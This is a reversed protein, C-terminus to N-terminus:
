LLWLERLITEYKEYDEIYKQKLYHKLIEKRDSYGTSFDKDHLSLKELMQPMTAIHKKLKVDKLQKRLEPQIYIDMKDYQLDPVKISVTIHRLSKESLIKLETNWFSSEQLQKKLEQILKKQVEWLYFADVVNQNDAFDFIGNKESVLPELLLYPNIAIEQFIIKKEAPIYQAVCKIQNNELSSTSRVSWLCLYNRFIFTKHLHGSIIKITPIDLFEESLAVDKFSFKSKQEPFITKNTYYHHILTCDKNDQIYQRIFENIHGSLRESKNESAFLYSRKKSVDEIQIKWPLMYPMFLINEWEIKRTIPETIFIMEWKKEGKLSKNVIEFAKKAEEYVFHQGLRDHNGALIYVSKWQIFLKVFFDYLALLASRDYAFHYVYDGLFIINKENLYDAVFNNLTDIIRDQYRSSIHIDWILLMKNSNFQLFLM